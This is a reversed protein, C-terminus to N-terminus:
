QRKTRDNKSSIPECIKERSVIQLIVSALLSFYCRAKAYQSCTDNSLGKWKKQKVNKVIQQWLGYGGHGHTGTHYKERTCLSSIITGSAKVGQTYRVRFDFGM